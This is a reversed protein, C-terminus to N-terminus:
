WLENHSIKSGLISEPLSLSKVAKLAAKLGVFGMCLENLENFKMPHMFKISDRIGRNMTIRIRM